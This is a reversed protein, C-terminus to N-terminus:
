CLMRERKSDEIQVGIELQVDRLVAVNKNISM